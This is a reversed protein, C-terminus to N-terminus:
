AAHPHSLTRVEVARGDPFIAGGDDFFIVGNCLLCWGQEPHWTRIHAALADIADASPCAPVHECM